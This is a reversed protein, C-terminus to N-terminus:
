PPASKQKRGRRLWGPLGLEAKTWLLLEVDHVSLEPRLKWTAHDNLMADHLYLLLEDTDVLWCKSSDRDDGVVTMKKALAAQIPEEVKRKEPFQWVFQDIEPRAEELRQHLSAMAKHFTREPLHVARSWVRFVDTIEEFVEEYEATRPLRWPGSV